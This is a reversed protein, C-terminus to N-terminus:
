GALHTALIAIVQAPGRELLVGVLVERSVGDTQLRTATGAARRLLWDYTYHTNNWVLAISDPHSQAHRLFRDILPTQDSLVPHAPNWIHLLDTDPPTLSIKDITQKPNDVLSKLAAITQRAVETATEPTYRDTAYMLRLALQDGPTAVLTLAADTQETAQVNRAHLGGRPRVAQEGLPYNEFVVLSDFLRVGRPVDSAGHVSVLPAHEHQRVDVFASQVDRLWSVADRREDIRVRMPVTNIFLGVAGEVGPLEPPRGAVTVGFVVDDTGAHSALVLSWAAQVVTSVTLGNARCLESLQTTEEAPLAMEVTEAGPSGSGVRDLPLSTPTTFGALAARWAADAAAPDQADLWAVYEEFRAPAPLESPRDGTLLREYHTFLDNLVVPLSWGDLLLHHHTWVFRHTRDATRALAFRFLPPDTLSFGRAREEAALEVLLADQNPHERWDVIRWPEPVARHVVQVPDEGDAQHFTTRLAPHRLVTEHWAARFAAVDLDGDLDFVLQVVYVGSDPSLLAHFHMGQQLPSLPYTAEIDSTGETRSSATVEDLFRAALLDITSIRHLAPCYTWRVHLQGALVFATIDLEYPRPQSPDQTGAPLVPAVHWPADDLGGDLQGLYNFCVAPTPLSRLPADPGHRLAGYGDGSPQGAVEGDASLAVPRIATFWGVTRTLDIDNTTNRGHGEIDVLIRDRRTWDTLVRGLATHLNDKTSKTRLLAATQSAPLVVTVTQANGYTGAGAGTHDPPIQGDNDVLLSRWGALEATHDQDALQRAWEQYSTTKAPLRGPEGSRARQYASALDDLLIRWSVGDVGLHHAIVILRHDDEAISGYLARLLCGSGLDFTAQTKTALEDFAALRRKPPLHDLEAVTLLSPPNSPLPANELTWEQDHRLLRLRLADHHHLLARLADELADPHLPETSRLVLAQNFHHPAPLHQDLFWRQIPTPPVPGSVVGQEATITRPASGLAEALAAITQHQFLLKPTLPLGARTARSVVQISLISDGGLAFFSDDRGVLPVGLVTAWIEALVRETPSRPAVYETSLDPAPLAARDVKGNSTLPMRDLIVVAAPVMYEPLERACHERLQAGTTGPAAVVYAALRPAGPTNDTRALVTAERVEPHALLVAEIEGPEVRFGRLQVQDDSRGLFVLRGDHRFRARDGTRYLRGGAPGFPDPLFRAATLGPRGLYGRSLGPGSVFVEGAVGPPVARLQADLLHVRTNSFPVGLAPERDEARCEGITAGVTCETPGYGNLFRRGPAWRRVVEATVAEGTSTLVALDPTEGPLAALASPALTAHTIAQRVLLDALQPGPLRQEGTAICLTGGFCLAMVVDWLSADFGFSAVALVRSGPDSRVAIAETTTLNALGRHAMLTGKPRGSSGSTYIIYALSDPGAVDEPQRDDAAAIAADDLCLVTTVSQPLAAALDSTTIVFRLGSDAMMFALRDPPYTPDLPLYAGGSKFVALLSIISACSRDLFVGVPTEARVGRARLVHALRNAARDLAAYGIHEDGRVLAIADPTRAAQAAILHHLCQEHPYPAATDNWAALEATEAPTLLPVTGVRRDPDAVMAALLLHFHDALRAITGAAFLDTSHEVTGRLGAATETLAFALDFRSTGPDLEVPEARVGPLALDAGSMGQLAFLVQYVPNHSLDRDPRLAETVAEFPVDQHAYASLCTQRVQRLLARFGPDGDLRVRLAVTNAFFGVVDEFERRARNAVPTGVVIDDQGGHRALLAAYATFLTMFLTVGEARSLAVLGRHLEAPLTFTHTAGTFTQAAPRPHDLPLEHLAPADALLDRWYALQGAVNEQGARNRQWRAFDAYQATPVPLEQGQYAAAFERLVMAVSWGDIVAHHGALVLLDEDDTRILEARFLPGNALDFPRRVFGTALEEAAQRDRAEVVPVTVTMRDAVVQEPRGDTTSITTRLAAHRAVVANLAREVMSVMLPGSLRLAVHTSYAATGPALNELFWLQRQAASLPVPAGDDDPLEDAHPARAPAADVLAALGAVDGAEFVARVSIDVGFETRVRNQVSAAMLSHGGLAVFGDHRGVRAVDLVEAWIASLRQETPTAPAAYGGRQATASPLAARDVKGNPTIPLADLPVIVSPVLHAPLTTACHERLQEGDLGPAVAYGVLRDGDLAVVADRVAPHARLAAEVEGLEVRHGRVKVQQDIRGVFRLDHGARVRDGTRYLRSGPPGFPDPVFREATTGPRRWYGRALGPGGLYLEGIGGSAVPNLEGDFVHVRTGAVPGGITVPQGPVCTAATSWITAETPGYLNHFRRGPAWRRVVEPPCAEGAVSVVSLAPLEAPATVVLASPPLTVATIAQRDLAAVLDAGPMLRGGPLCLTGGSCLAMVVEFISADFSTSAFQLVRTGPGIGFATRQADALGAIGRHTLLTGKPQGTSGSTYIVYALGDVPTRPLDAPQGDRHPEDLLVVEARHRPLTLDSYTLLVAVDSDALLYELRRAPYSPDLPLYAGGAKLVALLAVVLDITAPLCVGVRIDPGVGLTRLRHALATARAELARYTLQRDDHTLAVADPTRVAQAAVLEHLGLGETASNSRDTGIPSNPRDLATM